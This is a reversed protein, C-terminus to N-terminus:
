WEMKHASASRRVSMPIFCKTWATTATKTSAAASHFPFVSSDVSSTDRMVPVARGASLKAVKLLAWVRARPLVPLQVFKM